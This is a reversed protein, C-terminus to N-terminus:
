AAATLLAAYEAPNPDQNGWHSALNPEDWIIYSSLQPAYRAAFQGAWQAFQDPNNPPAYARGPDGDLLPILRLGQQAVANVLRDSAAWDYPTASPFYFSQKVATVGTAAIAALNAALADDDYRSLAVNLGLQAGGQPIPNVFGAPIGRTQYERQARFAGIGLLALGALLLYFLTLWPSPRM